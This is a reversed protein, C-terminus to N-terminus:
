PEVEQDPVMRAKYELCLMTIDDFQPANGVFADINAKVAPLIEDPKRDAVSTLVDQLRAMGYLENQENTAETVGDTYQFIKDGPELTLSGARYRIGEMGALVFGPRIKHPEFAGTGRSIFPMEHGANVFRFEGTILDLVGEFATIFLGESNSECLLDNVETFVDGLNRDPQTHDKILTKGIVMFLAAPVGKGSVDAMVIALHRNDVMFFDYFDGGVEKAPTMTAFIDIEPRDPFAPFICPLMSSQIHTAVDLEAGIREKEATVSTLNEIYENLSHAMNNFSIALDGIEDNSHVQARYDLHGNSIIEVDQKLTILPETIKGSFRRVLIVVGVIIVAFASFFILMALLIRQNMAEAPQLVVAEPVYICMSWATTEIPSYAYYIGETTLSVGTKRALIRSAIESAPNDRDDRINEPEAQDAAIHPSAIVDGNKDVLFAYSGEELDLDILTKHLDAVLIDMCVVGAFKGDADRFSSACSITLGRGYADEYMETFFPGRHNKAETYWSSDFYDYYSEYSGETVGLDARPDYCIHFGTETGIYITSIVDMNDSVVPDWIAEVNGLLSIEEQVHEYAIDETALYRQMSFTGANAADPPLVEAPLYKESNKYLSQIYDAFDGVYDAYRSLESDALQSQSVVINTLNQEMQTVLAAESDDKIQLMSFIGILSTLLLSIVSILLVITQVQKRIPRRKGQM